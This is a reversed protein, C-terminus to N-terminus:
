YRVDFGPYQGRYASWTSDINEILAEPPGIELRRLLEELKPKDGEAEIEVDGSGIINKVYGRIGLSKAVRSTFARYYVGQVQGHVVAKLHVLDTM